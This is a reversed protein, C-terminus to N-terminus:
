HSFTSKQLHFHSTRIRCTERRFPPVHNTHVTVPPPPWLSGKKIVGRDPPTGAIPASLRPLPNQQPSPFVPPIHPSPLCTCCAEWSPAGRAADLPPSEGALLLLFDNAHRSCVRTCVCVHARRWVDVRNCSFGHLVQGSSDRESSQQKKLKRKKKKKKVSKVCM